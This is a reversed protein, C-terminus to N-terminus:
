TPEHAVGLHQARGLLRKDRTWLRTAMGVTASALLHADVMGLGSGPLEAREIFSLLESDPLVDAQPLNNLLAVVRTRNAM